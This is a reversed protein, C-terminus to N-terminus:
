SSWCRACTLQRVDQEWREDEIIEPETLGFNEVMALLDERRNNMAM